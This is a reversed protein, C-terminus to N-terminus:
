YFYFWYSLKVEELLMFYYLEFKIDFGILCIYIMFYIMWGFKIFVFGIFDRIYFISWFILNYVLILFIVFVEWEIEKVM